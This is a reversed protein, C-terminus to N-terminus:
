WGTALHCKEMNIMGKINIATPFPPPRLVSGQTSWHNSTLFNFFIGGLLGLLLLWIPLLFTNKTALLLFHKSSSLTIVQTLHQQCPLQSLSQFTVMPNLLTSAVPALSLM